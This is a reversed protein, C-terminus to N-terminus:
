LALKGSDLDAVLKNVVEIIASNLVKGTLTADYGSNSGFGFGNLM